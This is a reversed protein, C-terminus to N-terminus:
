PPRNRRATSLLDISGVALLLVTKPEPIPALFPKSPLRRCAHAEFGWTTLM